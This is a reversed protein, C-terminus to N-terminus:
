RAVRLEFGMTNVIQAMTNEYKDVIWDKVFESSARLEITKMNEDVTATLKKFWNRYIDIGYESILEKSVQGWLGQPLELPKPQINNSIETATDAMSWKEVSIEKQPSVFELREVGKYGDVANAEKLIADKTQKTLELTKNLHLEFVEDKKEIRVLHPLIDYSREGLVGVLKARFQTEDSRHTIARDEVESLYAERQALTTYEILQEKTLNAKIKFDTNNIQVANRKESALAKSMYAIFSAKSPFTHGLLKPKNSMDQLIQNQANLGFERGSKSQLLSVDEASLPYHDALSKLEDYQIFHLLKGRKAKYEANTLKKRQNAPKISHQATDPKLPHIMAQNVGEEAVVENETEVLNSTESSLILSNSNESFTSENSRNNEFVKEKYIYSPPSFETICTDIKGETSRKETPTAAVKGVFHNQSLLVESSEIIAQGKKTHKFVYSHRCVKGDITTKVHYSIDLVDDLQKILNVNQDKECKTIRSLYNQNLISAENKRLKHVIVALLNVAKPSLPKKPNNARPIQEWHLKTYRFREQKKIHRDFDLVRAKDYINSRSPEDTYDLKSRQTNM